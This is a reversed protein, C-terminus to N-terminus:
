PQDKQAKLADAYQHFRKSTWNRRGRELDSVFSPSLGMQKAVRRLSVGCKIREKRVEKGTREHDIVTVRRSWTVMRM